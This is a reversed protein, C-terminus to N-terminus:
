KISKTVSVPQKIIPRFVLINSLLGLFWSLSINECRQKADTNVLLFQKCPVKRVFGKRQLQILKSKIGFKQELRMLLGSSRIWNSVQTFHLSTHESGIRRKSSICEGANWELLLYINDIINM